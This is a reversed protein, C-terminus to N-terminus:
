QALIEAMEVLAPNIPKKRTFTEEIPTYVIEGNVEGVMINSQGAALAKVAEYGLRSALLRDIATPRGGRQMHGLISVRFDIGTSERIHEGLEIAGGIEDGEAVVMILSTKGAATRQRIREAIAECDTRTEPILIEEAGGGIGSALGIFGAHRGMVEVIFMRDLSQGTDRIKDIADLATNVATDYGITLDTGYIDNDITGPVGVIPVGHETILDLAGRFSGDGGICVLADIGHARLNDAAKRRGEATRFEPARSTKLITGGLQIINSVSRRGMPEITGAMMGVYGRHIGYVDLGFHHATRVAGRVAANMGPADGGSTYVGIRRVAPTDSM